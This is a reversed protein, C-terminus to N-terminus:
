KIEKYWDSDTENKYDEYIMQILENRTYSRQGTETESMSETTVPFLIDLKEISLKYLMEDLISLKKYSPLSEFRIINIKDLSHCLGDKVYMMQNVALNDVHCLIDVPYKKDDGEQQLYKTSRMITDSIDMLHDIDVKKGNIFVFSSFKSTLGYLPANLRIFGKQDAPLYEYDLHTDEPDEVHEFNEVYENLHALAQPIYFVDIVDHTEIHVGGVTQMYLARAGSTPKLYVEQRYLPTKAIPHSYVSGHPILKGNKFVMFQNENTCYKFEEPLIISQKTEQVVEHYHRFQRKSVLTIDQPPTMNSGTPKQEQQENLGSGFNIQTVGTWAFAYPGIYQVTNRLVLPQSMSSCSAFAYAEISTISAPLTCQNPNLIQDGEMCGVHNLASCQQFTNPPISTLGCNKSSDVKFYVNNISSSNMFVGTGFYTVSAPIIIERMATCNSFAYDEIRELTDGLDITVGSMTGVYRFAEAAIVKINELTISHIVVNCSIIFQVLDRTITSNSDNGYIIINSDTLSTRVGEESAGCYVRCSM